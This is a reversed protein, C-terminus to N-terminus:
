RRGMLAFGIEKPRPIAATQDIILSSNRSATEELWAKQVRCKILFTVADLGSHM